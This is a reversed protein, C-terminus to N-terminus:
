PNELKRTCIVKIKDIFHMPKLSIPLHSYKTFECLATGVFMPCLKLFICNIFIYKQYTNKSMYFQGKFSLNWSNFSSHAIYTLERFAPIEKFCMFGQYFWALKTGGLKFSWLGGSLVIYTDISCSFHHANESKFIMM